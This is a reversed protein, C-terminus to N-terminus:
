FEIKYSLVPLIPLMYWNKLEGSQADFYQGGLNQHNTVNQFDLSLTTTSKTYNRKLSVRFDTRFYDPLKTTFALSEMYRTEGLEKSKEVDIPTTWFGGTYITRLNLGFVRNKKWNFEKGATFSLAHKGNFRTNRWVGDLAKYESNYLSGSLLFYLNNHLFQELTLEVGYNKGAGENVMAETVFGEEVVLSSLPSTPDNEVAINFLQQYYSEVKVRLYKTLSRDYGVILHHAKNFGLNQNPKIWTGDDQQIQAEYVGSPQMQSHLGYGVTLSQRDNLDYKISLRPEVSGSGNDKLYLFHLGTNLTLNQAPRYNWQSFLQITGADGTSNLPEEVQNTEADLHRQRLNYSYRNLYMGSRISNKANFKHNVVSSITLKKTIYNEKYNFQPIYDDDLRDNQFGHDNGSLVITSQLFTNTGLTIGHKFGAAGTNSFYNSNYRQYEEEWQTSDKEADQNQDSLGGFGFLSFNGLKRTPLYINYSLDQFNTVADGIPVGLKSLVSLTSYRYNILYSGRYNKSFPGEAAVEMGLFGAQVTYESKENNGKRLNLDFVGALANGYEAPFAGTSFDSNALLQSSLISIGGGSSGTDAFHNPNPIDVGEMRWLLGFPSNGRISITNNGDDASVVGAFSIAARAPDNVAAAFKRTEEVSFTRTSVTAMDNIPKNKEIDPRVIIEDLQTIDEEIPISLVVEKGSNVIINPITIEKYGVFSIHLTHTGVPINTLKFNGDPDTTTGVLPNSNVLLISAGPLSSQSVKDIVSGRITQTLSQGLSSFSLLLFVAFLSYNRFYTM